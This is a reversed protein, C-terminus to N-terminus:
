KGPWVRTVHGMKRRASPKGKGYIHLATNPATLWHTHDLIEDGILNIMEIKAGLRKPKALPWGAVARIHQEFQSVTAGDITWHGSNHVRPALENVLVHQERGKRVVFMEVGMVGVYDFANLFRTIICPVNPISRWAENADAAREIKAQGKGDYGLRATKLVAPVGVKALGDALQTASHVPAYPATAIKLGALFNKEILRDQTTELVHPDPLVKTHATLYAATKAPVNEFEYTVVDVANAFRALANEDDYAALTHAGVVDFACSDKDPAYVHCKLGLPAAALALMRALQGGGLIGITAGPKLVDPMLGAAKQQRIQDAEHAVSRAAERDEPGCLRPGCCGLAGRQDRRAQRDSAHRGPHRRADAPHVAAFGQWRACAHEDARGARAPLHALGDHGASARRRGRRRHDGHLRQRARRARVRLAAQAHPPRLRHPSRLRHRAHGTDRRRAEDHGLRVPQGHHDRGAKVANAEQTQSLPGSPLAPIYSGASRQCPSLRYPIGSVSLNAAFLALHATVYVLVSRSQQAGLDPTEGTFESVRLFSDGVQFRPGVDIRKQIDEVATAELAFERARDRM